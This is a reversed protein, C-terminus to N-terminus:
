QKLLLYYLYGNSVTMGARKEALGFNRVKAVLRVLLKGLEWDGTGM